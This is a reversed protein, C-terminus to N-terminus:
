EYANIEYEKELDEDSQSGFVMCARPLDTDFPCGKCMEDEGNENIYKRCIMEAEGITIDKLKKKM